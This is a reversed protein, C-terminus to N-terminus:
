AVVDCVPSSVSLNLLKARGVMGLTKAYWVVVSDAKEQAVLKVGFKRVSLWGSDFPTSACIVLDYSRKVHSAGLSRPCVARDFDQGGGRRVCPRGGACPVSVCDPM